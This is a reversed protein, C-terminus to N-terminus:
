SSTPALMASISALEAAGASMVAASSRTPDDRDELGPVLGHLAPPDLRLLDNVSAVQQQHGKADLGSASGAAQLDLLTAMGYEPHSVSPHQAAFLEGVEL